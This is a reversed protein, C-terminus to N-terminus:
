KKKSRKRVPKEADMEDAIRRLDAATGRYVKVRDLVDIEAKMYRALHEGRTGQNVPLDPDARQIADIAAAMKTAGVSPHALARSIPDVSFTPEVSYGPLSHFLTAVIQEAQRLLIPDDVWDTDGDRYLGEIALAILQMLRFNRRSGFANKIDEDTALSRRLRTQIEQSLTRKNATAAAQLAERTDPRVRISLVQSSVSAEDKPAPGRKGM